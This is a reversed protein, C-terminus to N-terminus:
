LISFIDEPINPYTYEVKDELDIDVSSSSKNLVLDITSGIYDYYLDDLHYANVKYYYHDLDTPNFEIRGDDDTLLTVNKVTVMGIYDIIEITVEIGSTALTPYSDDSNVVRGKWYSVNRFSANSEVVVGNIYLNGGYLQVMIRHKEYTLELETSIAKNNLFISNEADLSNANLASATKAQNGDFNSNNVVADGTCYVGGGYSATNNFFNSNNIICNGNVQLAGGSNGVSNNIFTCNEIFVFDNSLVAGGNNAIGNVFNINKLVINKAKIDFIRALGTGDITHGQGDVVFNDKSIVVGNKYDGDNVSSFIYDNDLKLENGTVRNIKNQLTTFEYLDEPTSKSKIEFPVQISDKIFFGQGDFEVMFSYNGVELDHVDLYAYGYGKNLHVTENGNGFRVLCDGTISQNSYVEVFINDEEGKIVSSCKASLQPDLFSINDNLVERGFVKVIFPLQCLENPLITIDIANNRVSYEFKKLKTEDFVFSVDEPKINLAYSAPFTYCTSFIIRIDNTLSGPNLEYDTILYAVDKGIWYREPAYPPNCYVLANSFDPNNTGYWNQNADSYHTTSYVITGKKATNGLFINGKTEVISCSYIAGGRDDAHNDIFVCSQCSYGGVKSYIAGCEGGSATNRIFTSGEISNFRLENIYLAGGNDGAVNREFYLPDQYIWLCGAVYVAGGSDEARNNIFRCGKLRLDTKSYVAGGDGDDRVTNSDFTCHYLELKGDTRVAGGM